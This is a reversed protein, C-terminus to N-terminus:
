MLVDNVHRIAFRARTRSAWVSLPGARYSICRAGFSRARPETCIEGDRSPYPREEDNIPRVAEDPMPFSTQAM